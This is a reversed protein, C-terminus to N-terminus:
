QQELRDLKDNLEQSQLASQEALRDLKNNLEIDRETLAIIARANSDVIKRTEDLGSEIRDLRSPDNSQTM